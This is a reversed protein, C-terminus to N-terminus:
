LFPTDRNISEKFNRNILRLSRIIKLINRMSLNEFSFYYIIDKLAMLYRHKQLPNSLRILIEIYNLYNKKESTISRDERDHVAMAAPCIGIKFNNFVARNVYNNDEGYHPFTSSFGGVVTLCKRSMLWHAAMIMKASYVSLISQNLLLDSCLQPPCLFSFQKDLKSFSSNVQLPSIIGYESNNRHTEILNEFVDPNVWADQNLLYVYDYNNDLAYKLGINNARGFGLNEKSEILYAQPYNKKIFEISGDTSGNDVILLDAAISSNAVSSLCKNLWKMGNYTVIIVLLKM